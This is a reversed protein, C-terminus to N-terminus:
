TRVYFADTRKGYQSTECKGAWSKKHRIKRMKWEQMKRGQMNIQAANKHRANETAGLFGTLQVPLRTGGRIGHVCATTAERRNIACHMTTIFM